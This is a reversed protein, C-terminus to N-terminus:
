LVIPLDLASTLAEAARNRLRERQLADQMEQRSRVHSLVIAIHDALAAVMQCDAPTLWRAAVNLTGITKTDQKLPAVIVNEDGILRTFLSTLTQLARPMIQAITIARDSTFAAEGSEIARKYVEVSDPKFRYGLIKIGATRELVRSITPSISQARVELTGDPQLLSIGSRLDLRQFENAVARLVDEEGSAAQRAVATATRLATAWISEAESRSRLPSAEDNQTRM